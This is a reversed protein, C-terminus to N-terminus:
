YPLGELKGHKLQNGYELGFEGYLQTRDTAGTKALPEAFFHGKMGGNEADPIELYVPACEALDVVGLTGQPMMRDTMVGFTGFDTVITNVNVGGVNRSTEQFKGYANAYLESIEVKLGSNVLVVTTEQSTLGGGDYISQFFNNAKAITLATQKYVDVVGDVTIAQTTGGKTTSVTFTSSSPVTKVWFYGATAGTAGSDIAIRVRDGVALGHAAETIVEDDAEWLSDGNGVITEDALVANTTIAALVGRTKRGTSNDSPKQYAGNIASYNIDRVMGELERLVQWDLEQIVPNQMANNTGSKQGYAALKSYAVGVASQHIQVVNTVNARARGTLAPADAGEVIAPQAADRLDYTQWEFETSTTQKGGSLGGIASFFPTETPTLAHLIGTYNPLNYNTGLASIGAM